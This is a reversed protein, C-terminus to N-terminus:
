HAHHRRVAKRTRKVRRKSVVRSGARTSMVRRTRRHRAPNYVRVRYGRQTRIANRTAAHTVVQNQMRLYDNTMTTTDFQARADRASAAVCFLAAALTLLLKRRTM